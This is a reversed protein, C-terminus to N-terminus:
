PPLPQPMRQFPAEPRPIREGIAAEAAPRFVAAGDSSLAALANWAERKVEAHRQASRAAEVIISWAEDVYTPVHLPTFAIPREEPYLAARKPLALRVPGSFTGAEKCAGVAWRENRLSSIRAADEASIDTVYIASFGPTGAPQREVRFAESARRETLVGAPWESGVMHTDVLALDAVDENVLVEALYQAIARRDMPAVIPALPEDQRGAYRTIIEDIRDAVRPDVPLSGDIKRLSYDSIRVRGNPSKTLRLESFSQGHAGPHIVFGRGVPVPEPTTDHSHGGLVFDVGNVARLLGMDRMLGRHSLVIFLDVEARHHWVAERVIPEVWSTYALEPYFTEDTYRNRADWSGSTLGLIGIRWGAREVIVFSKVPFPPEQRATVNALVVSAFPDSATMRTEDLGWAFDHNGLVRVDFRMAEVALRTSEGQSKLEALSGKEFDDGGNTLLVTEGQDRLADVHGRLRAWPSSGSADREYSAHLDAVHVITLSSPLPAPTFDGRPYAGCAWLSGLLVCASLRAHFSLYARLFTWIECPNFGNANM